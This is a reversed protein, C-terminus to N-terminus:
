NNNELLLQMQKENIIKIGLKQAKKLKLGPSNGMILLHTKKSINTKIKAGLKILIDKIDNRKTMVLAGTLVINKNKFFNSNYTNTNGLMVHQSNRIEVYKVLSLIMNYNHKNSMYHCINFAIINGINPVLILDEFSANIINELKGFYNALNVSTNEGVEHIGISYIFRNLTTIKAKNVSYLINKALSLGVRNLQILQTETLKFFDVPTSIFNKEVLQNIIADGIGKINMANKSVFHKFYEIKQAKCNLGQMCRLIGTSSQDLLVNCSPCNQPIIIAIRSYSDNKMPIISTIKPIVDGARKVVVKDGICIGLRNIEQINHLTAKKIIVGLIKIPHLHAVPTIIGTRGLQFTVDQLLTIQAEAIFKFAIAWKYVRNTNGLKKQLACSNIKIVVGDIDFDLESRKKQFNKYFYLVKEPSNTIYNYKNVPLGWIKLQELTQSQTSFTINDDILGIGYCLFSLSSINKNQYFKTQRLLGSATNRPNSFIKGKNHSIRKNLNIFTTKNIFIEGRIEIFKPFNNGKLYTPISKIQKINLTVNEGYIGNGRTSGSILKGNKYSLSVAVGDIKLECCLEIHKIIQLKNQINKYFALFEKENFANNLSLMPVKHHIIQFKNSPQEGVRNTPSDSEILHPFKKELKNLEYMLLDYEFDQIESINLVNYLYSYYNIKETLKIIKEKISKM